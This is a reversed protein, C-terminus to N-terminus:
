LIELYIILVEPSLTIANPGYIYVAIGDNLTVYITGNPEIYDGFGMVFSLFKERSYFQKLYLEVLRDIKYKAFSVACM